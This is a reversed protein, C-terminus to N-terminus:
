APRTRRAAAPTRCLALRVPQSKDGTSATTRHRGRRAAYRRVSAARCTRAAAAREPPRPVAEAVGAEAAQLESKGPHNPSGPSPYKGAAVEVAAAAAAEAPAPVRSLSKHKLPLAEGDPPARKMQDPKRGLWEWCPTACSPQKM